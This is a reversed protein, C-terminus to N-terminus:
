VADLTMDGICVTMVGLKMSCMEKTLIYRSAQRLRNM